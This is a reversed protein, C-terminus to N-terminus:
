LAAHSYKDLRSSTLTPTASNRLPAKAKLKNAPHSMLEEISRRSILIAGCPVAQGARLLGRNIYDRITWRSKRMYECAERVTVWERDLGM